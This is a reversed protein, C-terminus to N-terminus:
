LNDTFKDTKGTAKERLIMDYKSDAAPEDVVKVKSSRKTITNPNPLSLTFIECRSNPLVKYKPHKGVLYIVEISEFNSLDKGSNLKM